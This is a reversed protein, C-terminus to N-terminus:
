QWCRLLLRSQKLLKMGYDLVQMGRQCNTGAEMIYVEGETVVAGAFCEYSDKDRRETYTYTM